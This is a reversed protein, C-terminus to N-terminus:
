HSCDNASIEVQMLNLSRMFIFYTFISIGRGQSASTLSDEMQEHRTKGGISLSVKECSWHLDSLHQLQLCIDVTQVSNFLTFFNIVLGYFPRHSLM